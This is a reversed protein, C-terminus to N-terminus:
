FNFILTGVRTVDAKALPAPQEVAAPAQECICMPVSVSACLSLIVYLLLCFCTTRSIILFYNSKTITRKGVLAKGHPVVPLGMALKAVVWAALV